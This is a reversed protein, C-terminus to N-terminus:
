LCYLFRTFKWCCYTQNGVPLRTGPCTHERLAPTHLVREPGQTPPWWIVEVWSCFSTTTSSVLHKTTIISSSMWLTVPSFNHLTCSFHLLFVPATRQLYDLLNKYTILISPVSYRVLLRHCPLNIATSLHLFSTVTSVLFDPCFSLDM